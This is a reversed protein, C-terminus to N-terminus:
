ILGNLGYNSLILLHRWFLETTARETVDVSMNRIVQLPSGFGCGNLVIRYLVIVYVSFFMYHPWSLGACTDLFLVEFSSVLVFLRWHGTCALLGVTWTRLGHYLFTNTSHIPKLDPTFPQLLSLHHSYFLNQPSTIHALYSSGTPSYTFLSPIFFSASEVPLTICIPVLPRHNTILIMCIISCLHCCIFLQTLSHAPNLTEM